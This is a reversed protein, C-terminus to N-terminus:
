HIIFLIVEQPPVDFSVTSLDVKIYNDICPLIFFIGTIFSSITTTLKALDSVTPTSIKRLNLYFLDEKKTEIDKPNTPLKINSYM